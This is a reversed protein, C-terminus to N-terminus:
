QIYHQRKGIPPPSNKLTLGKEDIEFDAEHYQSHVMVLIERFAVKFDIMRTYNYGFQDKLAVWTIFQSKTASIRHLRQALWSYIDLGMPSHSLAALAREDLPVAHKTLSDFYDDSLQITSPWLVRQHEDTTLWLDMARVIQTNVQLAHGGDVFGLRITSASLRSLHNKIDKIDRGHAALGLRKVFGTLSSEVNILPSGTKLAETNLHTLILRSKTGYPLGINAFENTVPNLIRGAELAIRAKGQKRDWHRVSDGPNKYPLSVQCLVSHQYTIGEPDNMVMDHSSEILRKQIPTLTTEPFLQDPQENEVKESKSPNSKKAM